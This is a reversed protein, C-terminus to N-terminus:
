FDLRAGLQINRPGINTTGTVKGFGGDGLTTDAGGYQPTNTLNYAEGRIQLRLGEKLTFSKNLGLDLQRDGRRRVAGVFRPADGITYPAPDVVAATNFWNNPNQNVNTLASM